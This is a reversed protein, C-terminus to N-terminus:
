RSTMSFIRFQLATIFYNLIIKEDIVPCHSFHLPAMKKFHQEFEINETVVSKVEEM